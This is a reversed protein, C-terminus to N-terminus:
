TTAIVIIPETTPLGTPSGGAEEITVAIVDGDHMPEDVVATTTGDGSTTFIGGSIPTEGRVLWLEYAQGPELEELGETVLVAKALSASWYATAQAGSPLQASATEADPAARVEELALVAAPRNLNSLIATTAVGIGVLLVVSAALAFLRRRWAHPKAPERESVAAAPEDVADDGDQPMTAITALLEGRLAPPPAVDPLATELAAATEQAERAVAEWEPQETLATRYREEDARSLSRLAHGAALEAFEQETM